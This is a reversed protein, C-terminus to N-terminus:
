GARLLRAVHALAVGADGVVLPAPVSLMLNLPLGFEEINWGHVDLLGDGGIAQPHRLRIRQALSGQEPIYGYVPKGKAVAYGVEFCTGSDPEPGRFFDLNALVADAREILAINNRYIWAAQGAPDTIDAPVDQDLPFLGEFGHRACLAKLEQGRRTADPRFVDPGALYLSRIM